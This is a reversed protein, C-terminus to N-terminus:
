FHFDTVVQYVCYKLGISTEMSIGTCGVPYKIPSSASTYRQVHSKKRRGSKCGQEETWLPWIRAM